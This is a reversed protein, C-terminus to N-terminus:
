KMFTIRIGEIDDADCGYLADFQYRNNQVIVVRCEDENGSPEVEVTFPHNLDVRLPINLEM